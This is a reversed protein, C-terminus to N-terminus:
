RRLWWLALVGVVGVGFWFYRPAIRTIKQLQTLPSLVARILIVLYGFPLLFWRLNRENAIMQQAWDEGLSALMKKQFDPVPAAAIPLQLEHWIQYAQHRYSMARKLRGRQQFLAALNWLSHAEGSRDGIERAIENWQQQLEIARQYQGLSQYANGLNGLSNAEGSRDGIERKIELSQQHLEIARQYQGLSQYANGLNGLSYAEGRRDGIERAIDNLQQHFEIARQYQGLGYYALGLNGLSAAEGRRDGIERAIENYQQHFEIARQYQGLSQYALGLNGLSKAEGSRDGIERAIENWQQQFEIARQYQGLSQYAIGLNGLSAAEGSRDGIERAIENHQQHFEIARQYQGLSQYANGLNGLSAAEGSRDGIERKIELSQQHFEIARQYQGLSQYANGLNGLSAAEGRRDGIERKIELSQQQFEIARQYQGLSRYANGLNGLSKAEGSRDGIERAIENWQQQFEIARQYQGLSQYANGLNGLSAAEGSRDGIERAIENHQQHFEIARQYQGLSYYANGLRNKAWGLAERESSEIPDWAQVLQEHLPLLQRYYGGRSLQGYCRRLAQDARGYQELECAHYFVEFEEQCCELTGDWPQYNAQYFAIAREHAEAQHEATLRAQVLSQVLPHLRFRRDEETGLGLLLGQDTLQELDARTIQPGMAVAMALNMPLRYRSVQTLWVQLDAALRDFIVGFIVGVEAEPDEQYQALLKGLFDLATGDVVGGYTERTWGAVLKLQLPYGGVLDVLAGMAEPRDGKLGLRELFEVGEAASLGGLALQGPAIVPERSTVLVVSCRGREQWAQLFQRYWDWDPTAIASELQDLVVLMRVPANPDQLRLVLEKLLRPNDAQPDTVPRGLEQLVYRAFLEFEHPQRFSVWVRKDFTPTLQLAQQFGWAALNSKGFGGPAIIQILASTCLRDGLQRQPEARAVWDEPLEPAPEGVGAVLIEQPGQHYHRDGLYADGGVKGVARLQSHDRSEFKAEFKPESPNDPPEQM